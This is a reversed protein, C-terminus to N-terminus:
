EPGLALKGLYEGVFTELRGAEMAARLGIM